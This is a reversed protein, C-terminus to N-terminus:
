PPSREDPGEVTEGALEVARAAAGANSLFVEAGAAALREAQRALGQPDGTTGCLSVVVPTQSGALM